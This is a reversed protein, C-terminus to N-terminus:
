ITLALHFPLARLQELLKSRAAKIAEKSALSAGSSLCMLPDAGKSGVDKEPTVFGMAGLAARPDSQFQKRFADDSSLKDLLKDAVEASFNNAMRNELTMRGTSVSETAHIDYSEQARRDEFTTTM